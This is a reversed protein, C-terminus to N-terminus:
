QTQNLPNNITELINNFLEMKSPDASRSVSCICYNGAIKASFSMYITEEGDMIRSFAYAEPLSPPASWLIESQEVVSMDEALAIMQRMEDVEAALEGKLEEDPVTSLFDEAFESIGFEIRSQGDAKDALFFSVFAKDPFEEEHTIELNGPYNIELNRFTYTEGERSLNHCGVLLMLGAILLPHSHM